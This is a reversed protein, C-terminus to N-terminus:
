INQFEACGVALEDPTAVRSASEHCLRMTERLDIVTIKESDGNQDETGRSYEIEDNPGHTSAGKTTHVPSSRVANPTDSLDGDDKEVCNNVLGLENLDM